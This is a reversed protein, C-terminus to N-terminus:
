IYNFAAIVDFKIFIKTYYIVDLTEKILLLLYRSKLTINNIRRYNIYVRIRSGLKKVLLV